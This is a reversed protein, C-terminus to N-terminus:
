KTLPQYSPQGFQIIQTHLAWNWTQQFYRWTVNWHTTDLLKRSMGCQMQTTFIRKWHSRGSIIWRKAWTRSTFNSSDCPVYSWPQLWFSLKSDFTGSKNINQKNDLKVLNLAVSISHLKCTDAYMRGEYTPSTDDPGHNKDVEDINQKVYESGDSPDIVVTFTDKRM